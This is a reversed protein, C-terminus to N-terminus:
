RDDYGNLFFIMCAMGLLITVVFFLLGFFRNWYINKKYDTEFLKKNSYIYKKTRKQLGIMIIAVLGMALIPMIGRKLRFPLISVIFSYFSAVIYSIQTLFFFMHGTNNQRTFFFVM